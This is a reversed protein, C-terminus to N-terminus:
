LLARGDVMFRLDWCTKKVNNTYMPFKQFEVADQKILDLPVSKSDRKKWAKYLSFPVMFAFNFAEYKVQIIIMPIHGKGASMALNKEQNESLSSLPWGTHKGHYKTEIDFVRNTNNMIITSLIDFPKSPIFRSFKNAEDACKGCMNGTFVRVGDPIKYWFQGPYQHNFSDKLETQFKTEDKKAM